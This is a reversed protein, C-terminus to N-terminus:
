FPSPEKINYLDQFGTSSLYFIRNVLGAVVKTFIFFFPITELEPDTCPTILNNRKALNWRHSRVIVRSSPDFLADERKKSPDIQTYISLFVELSTFVLLNLALYDISSSDWQSDRTSISTIVLSPGLANNFDILRAPRKVCSRISKVPLGILMSSSRSTVGDLVTCIPIKLYIQLSCFFFQIQMLPSGNPFIILM